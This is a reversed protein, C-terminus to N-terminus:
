AVVGTLGSVQVPVSSNATGGNGLQGDFNGGWAWVTGDRRLALSHANGAAIVMVNSLGSVQVPVDSSGTNGNGLEGYGGYGWAWVTGDNKLVLSHDQSAAIAVVGTLGTVQGPPNPQSALSGDGGNGLQDYFNYGWSWVNPLQARANFAVLVLLCERRFSM